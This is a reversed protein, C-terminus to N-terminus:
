SSSGAAGCIRSWAASEIGNKATFSLAHWDFSRKIEEHGLLVLYETRDDELSHEGLVTLVSGLEKRISHKWQDLSSATGLTHISTYTIAVKLPCRVHALKNLEDRITHIRNEHEIAVLVPSPCKHVLNREVPYFVLDLRLPEGPCVQLGMKRATAHLVPTSQPQPTPECLMFHNLSGKEEFSTDWVRAWAADDFLDRCERFANCFADVFRRAYM